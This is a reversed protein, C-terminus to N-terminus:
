ISREEDEGDTNIAIAMQLAEAVEKSIEFRPAPARAPTSPPPSPLEAAIARPAPATPASQPRRIDLIAEGAPVAVVQVRDLAGMPLTGRVALAFGCRGDGVGADMLDSRFRDAVGEGITVDDLRVILSVREKPRGIRWAWGEILEPSARELVGEVGFAEPSIPLLEDQGTVRVGVRSVDVAVGQPVALQFGLDVRSHGLKELDPRHQNVSATAAVWGDVLLEVELERGPDSHDYVWGRIATRTLAEVYGVAGLTM